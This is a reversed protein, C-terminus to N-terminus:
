GRSAIIDIDDSQEESSDHDGSKDDEDIVDEDPPKESPSSDSASQFTTRGRWLLRSYKSACIRWFFAIM